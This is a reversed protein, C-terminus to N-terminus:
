MTYATHYYPWIVVDLKEFATVGNFANWNLYDAIAYGVARILDLTRKNTLWSSKLCFM